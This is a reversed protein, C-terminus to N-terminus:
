QDNTAWLMHVGWISASDARRGRIGACEKSANASYWAHLMFRTQAEYSAAFSSSVCVLRKRLSSALGSSGCGSPFLGPAHMRTGDWASSSVRNREPKSQKSTIARCHSPTMRRSPFRPPAM